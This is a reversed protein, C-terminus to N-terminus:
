DWYANSNRWDPYNTNLWPIATDRAQDIQDNQISADDSLRVPPTSHVRRGCDTVYWVISGDKDELDFDRRIDFRCILSMNAFRDHFDPKYFISGRERGKDDVLKTVRPNTTEQVTWGSPVEAYQFLKDGEVLGLFRVGAAELFGQGPLNNFVIKTPLM